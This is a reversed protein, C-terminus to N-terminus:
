AWYRREAEPKPPSPPAKFKETAKVDFELFRIAMDRMNLCFDKLEEESFDAMVSPRVLWSRWGSVSNGIAEVIRWLAVYCALRDSLDLTKLQEKRKETKGIWDLASDESM